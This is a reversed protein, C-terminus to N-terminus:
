KIGSQIREMKVMQKFEDTKIGFKCKKNVASNNEIQIKYKPEMENRKNITKMMFNIKTPIVEELAQLPEEFSKQLPKHVLKKISEIEQKNQKIDQKIQNTDHLQACTSLQRSLENFKRTYFDLDWQENSSQRDIDKIVQKRKCIEDEVEQIEKKKNNVDKRLQDPDRKTIVVIKKQSNIREFSEPLRKYQPRNLVKQKDESIHELIERVKLKEVETRQIQVDAIQKFEVKKQEIIKLKDQIEIIEQQVAQIQQMQADESIKSRQELQNIENEQQVTVLRIKNVLELITKETQSKEKDFKQQMHSNSERQDDIQTSIETLQAKILQKINNQKLPKLKENIADIQSYIKFAEYRAWSEAAQAQISSRQIAEYYVNYDAILTQDTCKTIDFNELPIKQYIFDPVINAKQFSYSAPIQM